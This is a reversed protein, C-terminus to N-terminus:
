VKLESLATGITRRALALTSGEKNVVCYLFVGELHNAPHLIHYQDELTILFDEIKQNIGLAKMIEYKSHYLKTNGASALELDLGKGQAGLMMGNTSDVISAAIAGDIQMVTELVEKVTAM